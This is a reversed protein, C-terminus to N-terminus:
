QMVFVRASYLLIIYSTRRFILEILSPRKALETIIRKIHTRPRTNYLIIYIIFQTTRRSTFPLVLARGRGRHIGAAVHLIIAIYTV